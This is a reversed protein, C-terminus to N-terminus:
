VKFLYNAFSKITAGEIKWLYERKKKIKKQKKNNKKTKKRKFNFICIRISIRSYPRLTM